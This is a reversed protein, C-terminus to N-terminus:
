EKPLSPPSYNLYVLGSAKAAIITIVTFIVGVALHMNYKSQNTNYQTEWSGCPVPLDDMTAPPPAGKYATLGRATPALAYRQRQALSRVVPNIIRNFM